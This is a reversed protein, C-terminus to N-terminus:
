PRSVFALQIPFLLSPNCKRPGNGRSDKFRDEDEKAGEEKRPKLSHKSTTVVLMKARKASPIRVSPDVITKPAPRKKATMDNDIKTEVDSKKKKDKKRRKEPATSSVVPQAVESKGKSAFIHDIESMLPILPHSISLFFNPAV